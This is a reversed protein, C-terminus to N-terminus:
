GGTMPPFFAVETAGALSSDLTVQKQNVAVKLLRLDSFAEAIFADHLKLYDVLEAVTSIGAPLTIEDWGRGVIQRLRAFYLIKM